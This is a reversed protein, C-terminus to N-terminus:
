KTNSPAAHERLDELQKDLEAVKRAWTLLDKHHTIKLWEEKKQIQQLYDERQHELYHEHCLYLESGVDYWVEEPSLKVKCKDCEYQTAGM